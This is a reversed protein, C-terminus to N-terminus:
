ASTVSIPGSAPTRARTYRWTNSAPSPPPVRCASSRDARSQHGVCLVNYCRRAAPVSSARAVVRRPGTAARRRSRLVIPASILVPAVRPRAPPPAALGAQPQCGGSHTRKHINLSSKQTFRKLCADCQYPREGTHTRLHIDLYPRRAFAAPCQGCAYPRGQVAGLACVFALLARRRRLHRSGQGGAGASRYGCRTAYLRSM